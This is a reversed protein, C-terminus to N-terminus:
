AELNIRKLQLLGCLMIGLHDNPGRLLRKYVAVEIAHAALLLRGLGQFVALFPLHSPTLEAALIYLCAISVITKGTAITKSSWQIRSVRNIGTGTTEDTYFEGM